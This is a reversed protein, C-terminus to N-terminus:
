QFIAGLMEDTLLVQKVPFLSAIQLGIFPTSLCNGVLSSPSKLHLPYTVAVVLNVLKKTDTLWSFHRARCSEFRYGKSGFDLVRDLQAVPACWKSIRKPSRKRFTAGKYREIMQGTLNSVILSFPDRDFSRRCNSELPMGQKTSRAEDPVEM